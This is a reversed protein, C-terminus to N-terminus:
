IQRSTGSSGSTGSTGSTNSSRAPENKYPNEFFLRKYWPLKEFYNFTNRKINYDADTLQQGYDDRIKCLIRYIQNHIRDGLTIDGKVYMNTEGYCYSHYSFAIYIKKDSNGEARKILENYESKKLLVCKSENDEM